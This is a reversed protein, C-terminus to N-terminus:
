YPRERPGIRLPIRFKREDARLGGSVAAAYAKASEVEDTVDRARGPPLLRKYSANDAASPMDSLMWHELREVMELCARCLKSGDVRLDKACLECDAPEFSEQAPNWFWRFM